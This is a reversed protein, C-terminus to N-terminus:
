PKKETLGYMELLDRAGPDGFAAQMRLYSVLTPFVRLLIWRRM